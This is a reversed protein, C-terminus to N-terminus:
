FDLDAYHSVPTVGRVREAFAHADRRTGQAKTRLADVLQAVNAANLLPSTPIGFIEQARRVAVQWVEQGPLKQAKLELEDRMDDLTATM